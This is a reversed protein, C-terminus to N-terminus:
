RSDEMPLNQASSNYPAHTVHAPQEDAERRQRERDAGREREAVRLEADRRDPVPAARDSEQQERDRQPQHITRLAIGAARAASANMCVGAGVAHGPTVRVSIRSLGVTTAERM